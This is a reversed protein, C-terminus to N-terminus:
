SYSLYSLQGRTTPDPFLVVEQLLEAANLGQQNNRDADPLLSAQSSRSVRKGPNSILFHVPINHRNPGPQTM